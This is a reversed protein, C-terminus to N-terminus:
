AAGGETRAGQYTTGVATQRGIKEQANLGVYKHDFVDSGKIGVLRMPKPDLAGNNGAAASKNTHRM